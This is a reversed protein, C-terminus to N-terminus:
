LVEKVTQLEERKWMYEMVQGSLSEVALYDIINVKRDNNQMFQQVFELQCELM